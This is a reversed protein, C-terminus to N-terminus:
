RVMSLHGQNVGRIEGATREFSSRLLNLEEESKVRVLGDM